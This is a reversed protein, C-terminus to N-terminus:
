MVFVTHWTLADDQDFCLDCFSSLRTSVLQIKLAVMMGLSVYAVREDVFWTEGVFWRLKGSRLELDICIMVEYASVRSLALDVALSVDSAENLHLSFCYSEYQDAFKIGAPLNLQDTRYAVDMTLNLGHEVMIERHRQPQTLFRSLITVDEGELSTERRM